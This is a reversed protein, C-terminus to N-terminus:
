IIDKLYYNIEEIEEKSFGEKAHFSVNSFSDKLLTQALSDRCLKKYHAVTVGILLTFSLILVLAVSAIIGVSAVDRFWFLLVCLSVFVAGLLVSFVAIRLRLRRLRDFLDM